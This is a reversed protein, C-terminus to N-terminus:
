RRPRVGDALRPWTSSDPDAPDAEAPHTDDDAMSCSRMPSCAPAAQNIVVAGVPMGLEACSPSPTSRDGARADGRAPDGPACSTAAPSAIVETVLRGALPDPGDKALGPSRSNRGVPVPSGGPRRPTWSSPTTPSSRPRSGRHHKAGQAPSAEYVRGILLVDRVGPAITTAFDIAGFRELVGGAPGTQLVAAPIGAPGDQRRRGAGSSRAATIPAGRRGDRDDAAAARRLDPQHGPTGRGRRAPGAAGARALAVALAAAVTTKGTGGKGTVVHLRVGPFGDARAPQWPPRVYWGHTSTAAPM